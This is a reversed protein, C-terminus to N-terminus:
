FINSLFRGLVDPAEEGRNAPKHMTASHIAGIFIKVLAIRAQTHWLM